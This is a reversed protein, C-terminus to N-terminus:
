AKAPRRHRNRSTRAMCLQGFASPESKWYFALPATHQGIDQMGSLRGSGLRHQLHDTHVVEECAALLIHCVQQALRVKLQDPMIHHLLQEQLHVLDVVQGARCRWHVVLLVGGWDSTSRCCPASELAASKGCQPEETLPLISICLAASNQQEEHSQMM